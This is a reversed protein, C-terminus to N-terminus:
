CSNNNFTDCAFGNRNLNHFYVVRCTTFVAADNADCSVSHPFLVWLGTVCEVIDNLFIKRNKKCQASPIFM